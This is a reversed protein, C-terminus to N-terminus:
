KLKKKRFLIRKRISRMGPSEEDSVNAALLEVEPWLGPYQRAINAACDLARARVAIPNSPVLFYGVAKAFVHGARDEELNEEQFISFVQRPMSAHNRQPHDLLDILDDLIAQLLAPCARHVQLMVYGAYQQRKIADPDPADSFPARLADLLEGLSIAGACIDQAAHHWSEKGRCQAFNLM